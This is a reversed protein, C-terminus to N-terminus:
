GSGWASPTSWRTTPSASSTPPRRPTPPPRRVASVPRWRRRPRRLLHPPPLGQRRRTSSRTRRGRAARPSTTPASSGCRSARRAGPTSTVPTACRWRRTPRTCRASTSTASAASPGSSSRGCRSTASLPVCSRRSTPRARADQKRAHALAAERVWAGDEHARRRHAIREANCAGDGALVAKFESWDIAGFDHQQREEDWRLDPDPIRVGLRDAQQVMMDVFKQRLEDNSFRKIGWAMSQATHGHNAAEGSDHPGFMMLAPWWWRDVADQAMQQQAPTGRM